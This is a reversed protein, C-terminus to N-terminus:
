DFIGWGGSGGVASEYTSKAAEYAAKLTALDKGGVGANKADDYARKKRDM